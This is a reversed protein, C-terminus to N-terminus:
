VVPMAQRLSWTGSFGYVMALGHAIGQCALYLFRTAIRSSARSDILRPSIFFPMKSRFVVFGLWILAAPFDRWSKAWRVLTCMSLM